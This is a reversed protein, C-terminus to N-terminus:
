GSAAAADAAPIAFSFTSGIGPESELWMRGGPAEVIQRSIPLGLGTGKAGGPLTDSSSQRFPEFIRAHDEPRIGTGGDAVAVVVEAGDVAVSCRVSGSKTFKVANSLLNIVVQILRHHDGIVPPVGDPLDRGLELSTTAFLAATAAIAQNVVELLDVPERRFEM